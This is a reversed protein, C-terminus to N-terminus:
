APELLRDAREVEVPKPRAGRARARGPHVDRGALVGVVSARREYAARPSATSQRWASTVRQPPIVPKRSRPPARALRVLEVEGAVSRASSRVGVDSQATGFSAGGRTTGRGRRPDLPHEEVAEELRLVAVSAGIRARGPRPARASALAVGLSECREIVRGGVRRHATSQRRARPQVALSRDLALDAELAPSGRARRSRRTSSGAAASRRRRDRPREVVDDGRDREGRARRASGRARRRSSGRPGTRAVDRDDDVEGLVQVPDELDVGLALERADLGADDEVSRALRGCSCPSM